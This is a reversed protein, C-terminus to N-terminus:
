EEFFSLITKYQKESISFIGNYPQELFFGDESKYVFVKDSSLGSSIEFTIELFENEKPVDQYSNSFKINALSLQLLLNDIDKDEVISKYNNEDVFHVKIITNKEPFNICNTKQQTCASFFVILLISICFFVFKKMFSIKLLRTLRVYLVISFGM